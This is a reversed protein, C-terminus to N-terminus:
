FDLWGWKMHGLLAHSLWDNGLLGVLEVENLGVICPKTLDSGLLGALGV